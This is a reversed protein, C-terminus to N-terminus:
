AAQDGTPPDLRVRDVGAPNFGARAVMVAASNRDRPKVSGCVSCTYTRESLPLAHKARAGCAGCDMTTWRPDVLRLDRDHKVAMWILEKKAQGIAGDAAKRAMTSKALFKPKFDEVAIQDHNFVISKAWKRADDKRKRAVKAYVKATQLQAKYYGKSKPKGKSRKRRAMMRQYKALKASETKAYHPHPLDFAEDTTTAIEKIGWDIGITRKVSPLTEAETKTM